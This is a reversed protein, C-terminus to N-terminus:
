QGFWSAVPSSAGLAHRLLNLSPVRSCGGGYRRCILGSSQSLARLEIDVAGVLISPSGLFRHQPPANADNLKQGLVEEARHLTLSYNPYESLYLIEIGTM